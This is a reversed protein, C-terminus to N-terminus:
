RFPIVSLKGFDGREAKVAYRGLQIDQPERSPLKRAARNGIFTEQALFGMVALAGLKYKRMMLLGLGTGLLLIPTFLYIRELKLRRLERNLNTAYDRPNLPQDSNSTRARYRRRSRLPDFLRELLAM